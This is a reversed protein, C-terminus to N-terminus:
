KIRKIKILVIHINWWYNLLWESLIFQIKFPVKFFVYWSLISFSLAQFAIDWSILGRAANYGGGKRLYEKSHYLVFPRLHRLCSCVAGTSWQSRLDLAFRSIAARYLVKKQIPPTPIVSGPTLNWPLNGILSSKM